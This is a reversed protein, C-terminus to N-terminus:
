RSRYSWSSGDPGDMVEISSQLLLDRIQDSLEFDKRTRAADRIELLGDILAPPYNLTANSHNALRSLEAVAEIALPGGQSAILALKEVSATEIHPLTLSQSVTAQYAQIKSLEITTGNEIVLTEGDRRWYVNARGIVSLRDEELDIIAATHEDIGLIGADPPLQAELARLRTEGLYCFRTDHNGGEANDFHPIVACKLGALALVDLGELWQGKAGVKYIEYIPATFTGLTLSAASAFCLVGGARLVSELADKIAVASWQALAYSPSGPGAFVYNAGRVEQRFIAEEVPTSETFDGFHLPTIHQNLSTAFYDVIKETMQPVNTQFAYSTDLAVARVEPLTALLQRHVKTM